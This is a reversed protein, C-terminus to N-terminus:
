GLQLVYSQLWKEIDGREKYGLRYVDRKIWDIADRTLRSTTVIMAKTAKQDDRIASLERVEGLRVKNSLDYKKAQWVSKIMGVIPDSRTAVVDLGGDRTAKTVEVQWGESELLDGILKEFERWNLESLLRGQRLLQLAMMIYTPSTEVWGPVEINVAPKWIQTHEPTEVLFTYKRLPEDAALWARSTSWEELANKFAYLWEETTRATKASFGLLGPDILQEVTEEDLMTNHFIFDDIEEDTPYGSPVQYQSDQLSRSGRYVEISDSIVTRVMDRLDQATLHQM